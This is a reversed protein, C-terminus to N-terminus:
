AGGKLWQRLMEACAEPSSDLLEEILAMLDEDVPQGDLVIQRKPKSAMILELKQKPTQAVELGGPDLAPAAAGGDIGMAAAVLPDPTGNLVPLPNLGLAVDLAGGTQVLAAGVLQPQLDLPRQVDAEEDERRRTLFFGLLLLAAASGLGLALATPQVKAAGTASTAGLTQALSTNFPMAAVSISTTDAGVASAVTQQISKIKDPTIDPQNVAIGVSIKKVSGPAILTTEKRQSVAYDTKTNTKWVDSSGNQGADGQYVPVSNPDTTAQASANKNQGAEKTSTTSQPVSQGVTTNEIRSVDTNLELNVRAVVNGPGFIPELLTQVRQEMERQMAQQRQLQDNDLGAGDLGTGSIGNSLLRGSQDVVKVNAISLGEVANAVFNVIGNVQDTSLRKGAKPQVLVAATVPKQDKIFVSQDPIALKVNAYDIEAMRELARELEGQQARLLNVKRDFDTSGFQPSDFLEMGVSSGKPLGAEALALKATYEETQPVQITITSQGSPKYPVKLDNLRAVIASADKPDAGSVLTVYTPRNLWYALGVAGVLAVGLGGVLWRQTRGLRGWTEKM